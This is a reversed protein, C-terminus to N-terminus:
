KRNYAIPTVQPHLVSMEVLAHLRGERRDREGLSLQQATSASVYTAIPLSPVRGAAARQWHLHPSVIVIVRNRFM